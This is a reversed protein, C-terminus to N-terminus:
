MIGGEWFPVDECWLGHPHPLLLWPPSLPTLLRPPSLPSPLQSSGPLSGFCHWHCLGMASGISILALTPGPAQVVSTSGSSSSVWISRLHLGLAVGISQLASASCCTQLVSTSFPNRHLLAWHLWLPPPVLHLWLVSPRHHLSPSSQCLRLWLSSPVQHLWLFSLSRHLRPLTSGLYLRHTLLVLHLGSAQPPALPDFCWPLAPSRFAWPPDSSSPPALM